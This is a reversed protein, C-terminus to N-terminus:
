MKGIINALAVHWDSAAIGAQHIKECSLVTYSPRAARESSGNHSSTPILKPAKFEPDHGAALQLTALALDYRSVPPVSCYHYLGQRFMPKELIHIIAEALDGAYTPNGVQDSIVSLEDETEAATLINKVFNNGHESFVWATRLIISDPNALLALLEGALKSQGYINRPNPSDTEQYAQNADGSFVYDSSLHIFRAGTQFSAAALNQVGQANIKFAKNIDQEADDVATYGAANVIADPEFTQIMREVAAHDTIDLTKSDAAILEWNEPLREKFCRGVQGKAGTLLIRM